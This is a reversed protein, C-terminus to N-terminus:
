DGKTTVRLIDFPKKPDVRFNCDLLQSLNPEVMNEEGSVFKKINLGGDCIISLQIGKRTRHRLGLQYVQKLSTKGKTNTAKVTKDTFYDELIKIKGQEITPDSRINM